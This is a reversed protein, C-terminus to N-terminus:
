FESNQFPVPSIASLVNHPRGYWSYPHLEPGKLWLKPYHYEPPSYAASFGLEAM